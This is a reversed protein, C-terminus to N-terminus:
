FQKQAGQSIPVKVNSKKSGDILKWEVITELRFSSRVFKSNTKM